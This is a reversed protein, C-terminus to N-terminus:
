KKFPNRERSLDGDMNHRKLKSTPIPGVLRAFPEELKAIKWDILVLFRNIELM